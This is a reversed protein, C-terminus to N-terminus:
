SEAPADIAHGPRPARERFSTVTQRLGELLPVEARWGLETAARRVDLAVERVEGGRAEVFNIPGQYDGAAMLEHVVTLVSTATGTGINFVGETDGALGLLNAEVVDSVFTFDRTQKGDGRIEPPRGSLLRECSIAVVGAEGTGDQYPGYVNAYRLALTSLRFTRAFMGLYGEGALKAAGYPSLPQAPSSEPVPLSPAHGYIAGGSSAFVFRHCGADVTARLMAVTGVVNITADAAPDRLSRTVGGQAALHLVAAPKFRRVAAAADATGIDFQELEIGSPLREGCAHRLDDIVLVKVGEAGLRRVTHTGIFGAGGTVLVRGPRPM